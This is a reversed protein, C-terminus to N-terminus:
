AQIAKQGPRQLLRLSIVLTVILATLLALEIMANRFGPEDEQIFKSM